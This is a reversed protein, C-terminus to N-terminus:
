NMPVRNGIYNFSIGALFNSLCDYPGLERVTYKNEKEQDGLGEALWQDYRQEDGDTREIQFGLM